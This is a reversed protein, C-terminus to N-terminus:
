ARTPRAAAPPVRAPRQRVTLGDRSFSTTAGGLRPRAQLLTVPQGAERLAIAATLGALGGGVVVVDHGPEAPGPGPRAASLEDRIMAASRGDPGGPAARPPGGAARRGGAVPRGRYSEPRAVPVRAAQLVAEPADAIDRLLRFYIGAMAGTCAASRRDLLPMLRLGRSYWDRAREAEFLVLDTLKPDAAPGAQAM